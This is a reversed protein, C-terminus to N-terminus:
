ASTVSNGRIDPLLMGDCVLGQHEPAVATSVPNVTPLIFIRSTGVIGNRLLLWSNVLREESENMEGDKLIWEKM